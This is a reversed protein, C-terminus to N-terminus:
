VWKEPDIGQEKCIKGLKRVAGGVRRGERMAGFLHKSVVQQTVGLIEAIEEQTKNENFYLDMVQQQRASLRSRIIVGIQRVAERKLRDREGRRAADEDSRSPRRWLGSEGSLSDLITPDVPVEWFRPDSKTM